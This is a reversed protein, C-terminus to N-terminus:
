YLQRNKYLMFVLAMKRIIWGNEKIYTKTPMFEQEQQKVNVKGKGTMKDNIWIGEDHDGNHFDMEGEGNKM